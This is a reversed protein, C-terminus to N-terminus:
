VYQAYLARVIIRIIQDRCAHRYTHVHTPFYLLFYMFATQRLSLSCRLLM